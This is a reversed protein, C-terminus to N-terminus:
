IYIQCKPTDCRNSRVLSYYSGMAIFTAPLLNGRFTLLKTDSFLSKCELLSKQQFM